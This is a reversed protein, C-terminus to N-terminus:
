EIRSIFGAPVHEALVYGNKSLWFEIGSARASAVDIKLTVETGSRGVSTNETQCMHVLDRRMRSLGDRFISELFRNFTGHYAVTIHPPLPTMVTRPDVRVSHGQTARIRENGADMEYRTKDDNSVIRALHEADEILKCHALVTKLSVWGGEGHGAMPSHRLLWSLKKSARIDDSTM